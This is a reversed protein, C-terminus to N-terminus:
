KGAKEFHQYDKLSTWNGGWKWGLELFKKVVVSDATMTGQRSTKYVAERPLM